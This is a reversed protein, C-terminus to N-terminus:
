SEFNLHESLGGAQLLRLLSLAKICCEVHSKPGNQRDFRKQICPRQLRKTKTSILM